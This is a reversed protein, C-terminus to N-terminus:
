ISIAGPLRQNNDIKILEARVYLINLDKHYQSPYYNEVLMEQFRM